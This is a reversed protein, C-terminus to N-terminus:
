CNLSENFIEQIGDTVQKAELTYTADKITERIETKLATIAEDTTSTKRLKIINYAIDKAKNFRERDYANKLVLLKDDQSLNFIMDQAAFGFLKLWVMNDMLVDIKGGGSKVAFFRSANVTRVQDYVAYTDKNQLNLPLGAVRGINIKNVGEGNASSTLPMVVYTFKDNNRKLVVSLHKGNFEGNRVPEYDVYYIHCLKIESLKLLEGGRVHYYV